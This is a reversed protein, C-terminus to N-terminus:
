FMKMVELLSRLGMLCNSKQGPFGVWRKQSYIESSQINWIFPIHLLHGETDPKKEGLMIKRFTMM